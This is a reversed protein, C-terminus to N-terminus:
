VALLAKPSGKAHIWECVTPVFDVKVMNIMDITQIIKVAIVFIRVPCCYLVIFRLRFEM